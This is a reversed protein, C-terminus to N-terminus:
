IYHYPKVIDLKQSQTLMKPMNKVEIKGVKHVRGFSGAESHLCHVFRRRLGGDSVAESDASFGRLVVEFVAPFAHLNTGFAEDSAM